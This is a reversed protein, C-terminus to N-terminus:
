DAVHHPRKEKEQAGHTRGGILGSQRFSFAATDTIIIHDVLDVGLPALLPILAETLQRDALSPRADGDPHNHCLVAAQAGARLLAAVALRPYFAAEGEDGSSILTKQLLRGGADLALVYVREYREGMLLARCYDAWEGPQQRGRVRDAQERYYLRSLPLLLSILVSASEGIGHVGQLEERPASFVAGLSGFREILAKAIPKTDKRPIAYTLLLELAEHDAFGDLGASEYRERLRARHGEQGQVDGGGKRCLIAYDAQYSYFFPRLRSGKM